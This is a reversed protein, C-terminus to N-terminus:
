NVRSVQPPAPEMLHRQHLALFGALNERRQALFVLVVGLSEVVVLDGGGIAPHLPDEPRAGPQAPVVDVVALDDDEVGREPRVPAARREDREEPHAAVAAGGHEAAADDRVAGDVRADPQQARELLRDLRIHGLGDDGVAAVRHDGGDLGHERLGVM